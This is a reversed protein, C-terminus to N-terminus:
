LNLGTDSKLIAYIYVDEYVGKKIVRQRLLGERLFGTKELIRQSGPNRVMCYAYIRNLGHKSFGRRVMSRLADTGFGLGWFPQGIWISLEAQEHCMEFDRLMVVGVLGGSKVDLIGQIDEDGSESRKMLQRADELGFPNPLTCMDDAIMPDNALRVLEFEDSQQLKRLIVNM